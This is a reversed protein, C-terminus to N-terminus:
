QVRPPTPLMSEILSKKTQSDAQATIKDIDRAHTTGTEKEIFDLDKMDANSGAERAKAQKLIADAQETATKADMLNLEKQLKLLELQQIAQAMPDPEPRYNEINRALEPMNRLRAIEARIMRVEGPDSNPGITQLMFALEQAKQNNEQVSNIKIKLDINGLLDDRRVIAFNGDTMRIVEEEDLLEANMAHWQRFMSVLGNALRRLIGAERVAAADLVGQVGRASTKGLADGSLGGSFAKTGTMSEAELNHLQVMNYASQPIEPYQHTYFMEAPNRGPNFEYDQGEMFKKRNLFDLSDKSVGTQGNASRAMLDIMGRSVAGVIHQNDEILVADPEGYVSEKVPLYDVFIFPLQKHAFPNLELKIMLDGAFTAQIPVLKNDGNIDWFGWYEYIYFQKRAKDEFRFNNTRKVSGTTRDTEEPAALDMTKLIDLNSYSGEKELDAICTEIRHIVFRAKQSDNKCSPDIIIDDANCIDVTPSNKIVNVSTVKEVSAVVPMWVRQQEDEMTMQFAIQYHEPVIKTFDEPTEQYIRSLEDMTSMARPTNSEQYTYVPADEEIEEEIYDWGTKLIVTGEDVSTRIYADIFKVRDISKRFQTNLVLEAQRSALADEATVPETKIINESTLFPDSLSGYRWEAQKRILKPQYNSFGQRKKLKAKGEVYMLDLWGQIRDVQETHLQDSNVLDNRLDAVTPPNKWDVMENVIADHDNEPINSENDM